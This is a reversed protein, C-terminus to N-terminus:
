TKGGARTGRDGNARANRGLPRSRSRRISSSSALTSLHSESQYRSNECLGIYIVTVQLCLRLLTRFFLALSTTRQTNSPQQSILERYNNVVVFASIIRCFLLLLAAFPCNSIAEPYQIRYKICVFKSELNVGLVDVMLIM